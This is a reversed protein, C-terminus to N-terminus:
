NIFYYYSPQICTGPGYIVTHAHQYYLFLFLSNSILHTVLVPFTFTCNKKVLSLSHTHTHSQFTLSNTQGQAGREREKQGDIAMKKKLFFSLSKKREIQSLALVPRCRCRVNDKRRAVVEIYRSSTPMKKKRSQRNTLEHLKM